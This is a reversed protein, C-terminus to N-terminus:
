EMDIDGGSKTEFSNGLSPMLATSPVANVPSSAAGNLKNLRTRKLRQILVVVNVLASLSPTFDDGNVKPPAVHTCDEFVESADPEITISSSEPIKPKLGVKSLPGSLQLLNQIRLEEFPPSATSLCKQFSSHQALKRSRARSFKSEVQRVSLGTCTAPRQKEERHPYPNFSHCHLWAKLEATQEGTFQRVQPKKAVEREDNPMVVMSHGDFPDLLVNLTSKEFETPTDSSSSRVSSSVSRPPSLSPVSMSPSTPIEPIPMQPFTPSITRRPYDLQRQLDSFM